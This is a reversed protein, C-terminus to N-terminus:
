FRSRTIKELNSFLERIRIRLNMSIWGERRSRSIFDQEVYGENIESLPYRIIILQLIFLSLSPMLADIRSQNETKHRTKSNTSM